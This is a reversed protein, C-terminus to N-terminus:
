VLSKICMTYMLRNVFYVLFINISALVGNIGMKYDLKNPNKILMVIAFIIIIILTIFALISLLLFYLCASKDLPGFFMSLLNSM